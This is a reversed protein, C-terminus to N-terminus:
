RCSAANLSDIWASVLAVGDADPRNSALPPMGFADRRSMRSLLESRASDGPAIIRANPIGLNGLTPAVNCAGTVPLPTDHRLDISAPTPGGPRHCISCNIHLYTRARAELSNGADGYDAYAPSDAGVPPSLVEIASLTTLQNAIRGTQPYHLRGNLQATEPGLTFGAAGNHCWMCDAESPFTYDQGAIAVTLGDSV